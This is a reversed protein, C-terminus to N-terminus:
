KDKFFTHNGGTKKTQYWYNMSLDGNRGYDYVASIGKSFFAGDVTGDKLIVSGACFTHGTVFSLGDMLTTNVLAKLTTMLM